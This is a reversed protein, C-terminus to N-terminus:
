TGDLGHMGDLGDLGPLVLEHYGGQVVHPVNPVHVERSFFRIGFVRRLGPFHGLECHVSM